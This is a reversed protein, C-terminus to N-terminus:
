NHQNNSNHYQFHITYLLKKLLIILKKVFDIHTPDTQYADEDEVSAFTM